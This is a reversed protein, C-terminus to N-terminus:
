IYAQMDKSEMSNLFLSFLEKEWAYSHLFLNRDCFNKNKNKCADCNDLLEVEEKDETEAHSIM